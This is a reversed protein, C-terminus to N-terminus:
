ARRVLHLYTPDFGAVRVLREQDDITLHRQELTILGEGRMRQLVRNVHVGTLGVTDALQEQTVPLDYGGNRTLGVQSMRVWLECFLHAFRQHASRRAVNVLWERSVAEDVLASWWFARGVAPFRESIETIEAAPIAVIKANSLLGISHDMKGLILTQPACMDGPVLYALIQRSGDRLMKYRYAWGELVLFVQAPLEGEKILDERANKQRSATCLAMIAAIMDPDLETFGNLKRILPNASSRGRRAPPQQSAM